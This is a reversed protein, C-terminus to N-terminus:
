DLKVLRRAEVGTPTHLRAFYVGAAVQVGSTDRGDWSWEVHGPGHPDDALLRVQRGSVDVIELRVRGAVPLHARLRTAGTSPNPIPPALQLRTGAPGGPADLVEDDVNEIAGLDPALGWYEGSDREWVIEGDKEYATIGADKGPSTAHINFNPLMVPDTYLTTAPDVNSALTDRGNEWFLNHAAFSGANVNKLAVNTTYVILNNLVLTSDGGTIGHNNGSITNNYIGIRELVNAGSYNEITNECCMMGIGAMANKVILNGEIRFTRATAVNSSIFQIGDEGNRRIINDKITVSLPAGVFPQLRIEIGDDGNDQIVNDIIVASVDNDIDIGDDSNAEFVSRQLLGGAGGEYDIGDTTMTVRSDIMRFKGYARIGDDANLFTLGVFTPILTPQVRVCYAGRKGDIVTQRVYSTDRTTHFLSALTISKNTITVNEKYVGPSILILDGNVSATVAAQITAYQSPVLRTTAAHASGRPHLVAGAGLALVLMPALARQALKSRM